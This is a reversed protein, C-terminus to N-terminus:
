SPRELRVRRKRMAATLVREYDRVPVDEGVGFGYDALLDRAIRGVAAPSIRRDELFTDLTPLLSPVLSIRRLAVAVGQRVARPTLPHPLQVGPTDAVVPVVVVAASRM